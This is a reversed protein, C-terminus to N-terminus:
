CPSKKLDVLATQLSVSWQHVDQSTQNRFHMTVLKDMNLLHVKQLVTVSGTM